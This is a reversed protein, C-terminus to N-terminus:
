PLGRLVGPGGAFAGFRKVTAALRRQEPPTLACLLEVDVRVHDRDVARKWGGVLQGDIAIVHSILASGGTIAKVSKLRRGFASRNRLGIFLEDYNPLLHATPGPKADRAGIFWYKVDEVTVSEVSKDLLEIARRVDTMPLGSWWSFDQASAPGRTTFYRRALETLSEDRAMPPVPPVREEVLAYTSQKGRRAGSTVVADLEAGMMIHGLRQGSITGIKARELVPRLEPRTLQKGGRLAKVIAANCRRFTAADLELQRSYYAIMANVRPGTLALMWRLDLPDVFHWTPRLVHTRLIKGENFEREIAEDTAGVTRQALAWKAGNYDQAQVAGLARVVQSGTTLASTALYQSALRQRAFDV